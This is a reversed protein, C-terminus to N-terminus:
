NSKGYVEGSHADFVMIWEANFLAVGSDHGTLHTGQGSASNM